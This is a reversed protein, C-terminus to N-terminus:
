GRLGGQGATLGQDPIYHLVELEWGRIIHGLVARVRVCSVAHIIGGWLASPGAMDM